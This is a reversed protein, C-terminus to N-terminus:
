MSAAKGMQLGHIRSESSRGHACGDQPLRKTRRSPLSTQGVGKEYMPGTCLKQHHASIKEKSRLLDDTTTGSKPTLAIGSSVTEVEEGSPLASNVTKIISYLPYVSRLASDEPLRIFVRNTRFLRKSPLPQAPRKALNEPTAGRFLEAYSKPGAHKIDKEPPSYRCRSEASAGPLSM